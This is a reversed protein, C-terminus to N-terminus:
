QYILGTVTRDVFHGMEESDMEIKVGKLAEIMANVIVNNNGISGGTSGAVSADLNMADNMEGSLAKVQNVLSPSAKRLNDSLGNIFDPMWQEYERLPGEDPKSFHLFSKIKEAVEGVAEGIKGIMGKIGDIIGQIIDKGWQLAQSPIQTIVDKITTVINWAESGLAGLMSAVGKILEGIIQGGATLIQPLNQILTNVITYIIRPTMAVLQPLAQILGNILAVMIQIAGTVIVPLNQILVNVITEIITPVYDMLQPIANALGTIVGVLLEVGAQIILSLNNLLTTVITNIIEPLMAILQPLADALGQIISTIMQMGTDILTPLLSVLASIIQPLLQMIADVISPLVEAIAQIAQTVADILIPLSETIMPPIMNVLQPIIQTLLGSALEGMGQIVNQVIPLVNGLMTMLSDVFQGILGSLDANSNGLGTLLNQWASKMSNVSGEITTSAEKATTGAIGLSEQMVSIANVINDFSMSSEDVSVGLKDQVDTMKSADSILRQMEEKTGGYGLKLNDLMTYNQKAFGQYANQISEMDTGMKNANDSMDIIARNAYESAKQTDGGLSQILSASFGTVTDMYENASLGATKYANNAYNEVVGASDKFLTEVGGTLQEYDSYNAVAQKGVDVIASGLNKLGNFASIIADHALDSLVQKMVTWGQTSQEAKKGSDETEKGLDGIAKTTKNVDAQANNIQVRLSSLSQNNADQATTSKKVQEELDAVKAKQEQYETSTTGLTKGLTDLKSKENNYSAILLEHKATQKTMEASMANYQNELATVKNKQVDLVKNLAEKKATLAQTSKDNKDYSSSVVKMESSVERLNQTIQSLARRYETEGTLKIAGGFAM